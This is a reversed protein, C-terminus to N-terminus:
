GNQGSPEVFELKDGATLKHSADVQTDGVMAWAGKPINLETRLRERVTRVTLGAVEYSGSNAGCTVTVTKADTKKTAM